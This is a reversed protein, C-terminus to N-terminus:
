NPGPPQAEEIVYFREHVKGARIRLGVITPADRSIAPDTIQESNLPTWKLVFDYTGSLGTRDEVTRGAGAPWKLWQALEEMAVNRALLSPGPKVEFAHQAGANSHLAPGLKGNHAVTLVLGKAQRTEARLKVHFREM